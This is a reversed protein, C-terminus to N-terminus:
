LELRELSKRPKKSHDTSTATNVHREPWIDEVALGLKAAIAREMKPYSSDLAIRVAQRSVSLERAISAFSSGRLELMGKIWVRREDPKKPIRHRTM